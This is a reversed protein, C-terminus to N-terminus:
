NLKSWNFEDKDQPDRSRGAGVEISEENMQTMFRERNRNLKFHIVWRSDDVWELLAWRVIVLLATLLGGALVRM